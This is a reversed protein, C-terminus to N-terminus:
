GQHLQYGEGKKALIFALAPFHIELFVRAGSAEPDNRFFM